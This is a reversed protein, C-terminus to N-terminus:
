ARQLPRTWRFAGLLTLGVGLAALVTAIFEFDKQRDTDVTYVPVNSNTMAAPISLEVM